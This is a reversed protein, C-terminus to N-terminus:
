LVVEITGATVPLVQVMGIPTVDTVTLEGITAAYAQVVGITPTPRVFGGLLWWLLELM